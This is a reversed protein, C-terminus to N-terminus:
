NKYTNLESTLSVISPNDKLLTIPINDGTKYLKYISKKVKMVEGYSKGKFHYEIEFGGGLPYKGTIRAHSEYPNSRIQSLKYEHYKNNMLILSYSLMGLLLIIFSSIACFLIQSSSLRLTM